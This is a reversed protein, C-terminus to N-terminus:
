PRPKATELRADDPLDGLTARGSFSRIVLRQYTQLAERRGIAEPYARKVLYGFNPGYTIGLATSLDPRASGQPNSTVLLQATQFPLFLSPENSPPACM